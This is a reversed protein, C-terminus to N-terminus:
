IQLAGDEEFSYYTGDGIILHDLVPICLARGAELLTQTLERDESSPTPDGSPHNHAVVIAAANQLIAPQFVDRPHVISTSLSGESVVETGIVKNKADLLIVVFQEKAAYRLRPMLFAAGEAPEGFYFKDLPRASALRRGLELAALVTAAKAQGLGRIQTLEEM